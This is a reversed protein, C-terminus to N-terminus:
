GNLWGPRRVALYVGVAALPVECIVLIVYDSATVIFAPEAIAFLNVVLNVLGHLLIAPWVSGFRIVLGAYLVASLFSEAIQLLTMPLDGDIANLIHLAAFLVACVVAAAIRGRSSNWALALPLLLVGRFLLEETVGAFGSQFLLPGSGAPVSGPLWIRGFFSLLAALCSYMLLVLTFLAARGREEPPLALVRLWGLRWILILSLVAGVVQGPIQVTVDQIPQDLIRSGLAVAASMGAFVVVIAIFIWIIPLRNAFIRIRTM